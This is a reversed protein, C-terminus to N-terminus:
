MFGGREAYTFGNFQDGGALTKGLESEPIVSDQVVENTFTPDFNETDQGDVAKIKPKYPSEIQKKMMADFNISSFFPHSKIDEVDDKSGLRKKPDRNLLGVILSKCNDSLFPPFRLVGHQIKNYMENVNQSYFPPIGV